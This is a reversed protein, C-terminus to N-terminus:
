SNFDEIDRLNKIITLQSFYNQEWVKGYHAELDGIFLGWTYHYSPPKRKFVREYLEYPKIWFNFNGIHIRQKDDM